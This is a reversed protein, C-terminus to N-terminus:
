AVPRSEASAMAVAIRAAVRVNNELLARNARLSRGGSIEALSSLVHPTLMAGSIGQARAEVEAEEIWAEVSALDLADAEPVPVAVLLAAQIGLANRMRAMSAVAEPGDVRASIPLGTDRVYFAPLSDVGYGLVLVGRTELVELTAPLDLLSKAGSCVVTLATDGLADLDASVDFPRGRHVGGIGGTAFVRIGALKAALLTGSVTTGGCEGRALALPLERRGCKRAAKAEALRKLESSALGVCLSGDLVAVTAPFAGEEFVKAELARAVELNQPRPLGHTIVASELAVVARGADLAERVAPLIRLPTV